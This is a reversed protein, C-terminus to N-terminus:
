SAPGRSADRADRVLAPLQVVLFAVCLMPLAPIALDDLEFVTVSTLMLGCWMAVATRRVGLSWRTAVAIFLALFLVDVTGIRGFAAYPAGSIPTAITPWEIWRPEERGKDIVAKTVGRSSYVSWADALPVCVSIPLLWWPREVVRVFAAGALIGFWAKALDAPVPLAAVNCAMAVTFTGAIAFALRTCPAHWWSTAQAALGVLLAFWAAHTAYIAIRLQALSQPRPLHPAVLLMALM